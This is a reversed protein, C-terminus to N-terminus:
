TTPRRSRSRGRVPEAATMRVEHTAGPPTVFFDVIGECWRRRCRSTEGWLSFDPGKKREITDLDAVLQLDCVRCVALVEWNAQRIRAVTPCAERWDATTFRDKNRAGM